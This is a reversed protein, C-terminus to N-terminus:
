FVMRYLVHGLLGLAGVLVVTLTLMTGGLRQWGPADEALFHAAHIARGATLMLGLIHILWAPAGMLAAALLLLLAMPVNEVFNAHGRMARTVHLVGGDGISVKYRGRLKVISFALYALILANLSLYLSVALLAPPLDPTM